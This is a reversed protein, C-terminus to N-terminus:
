RRRDERRRRGTSAPRCRSRSPSRQLWAGLTSAWGNGSPRQATRLRSRSSVAALRSVNAGPSPAAQFSSCSTQSVSRGPMRSARKVGNGRDAGAGPQRQPQPGRTSQAQGPRHQQRDPAHALLLEAALASPEQERAVGQVRVEGRFCRAAAAEAPEHGHETLGVAEGDGGAAGSRESRGEDAPQRMAAPGDAAPFSDGLDDDAVASGDADAGRAAFRHDGAPGDEGVHRRGREVAGEDRFLVEGSPQEGVQFAELPVEGGELDVPCQVARHGPGARLCRLRSGDVERVAHVGQGAEGGLDGRAVNGVFGEGEEALHGGGVGAAGRPM